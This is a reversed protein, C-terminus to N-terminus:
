VFIHYLAARRGRPHELFNHVLFQYKRCQALRHRRLHDGAIPQGFLNVRQRRQGAAAPGPLTGCATGLALLGAARFRRRDGVSEVGTEVAFEGAAVASGFAREARGFARSTTAPPSPTSRRLLLPQPTPPPPEASRPRTPRRAHQRRQLLPSRVLTPAPTVSRLLEALPQDAALALLPQSATLSHADLAGLPPLDISEEGSEERLAPSLRRGAWRLAVPAPPPPAPPPAPPRPSHPPSRPPSRLSPPPPSRHPSALPPLRTPPLPPPPPLPLAPHALPLTLPPPPTPDSTLRGSISAIPPPPVGTWPPQM